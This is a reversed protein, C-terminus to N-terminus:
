SLTTPLRGHLSEQDVLQPDCVYQPPMIDFLHIDWATGLKENSAIIDMGRKSYLTLGTCLVKGIKLHTSYPNLWHKCCYQFHCTLYDAPLEKKIMEFDSNFNDSVTIDDEAILVEEWDMFRAMKIISLNTMILANIGPGTYFLPNTQWFEPPHDRLYPNTTSLGMAKGDFAPYIKFNVGKEKLHQEVRAKRSPVTIVIM